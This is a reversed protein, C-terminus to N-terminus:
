PRLFKPAEIKKKQLLYPTYYYVPPGFLLNIYCFFFTLLFNSVRTTQEGKGSVRKRKRRGEGEIQRDDGGGRAAAIEPSL